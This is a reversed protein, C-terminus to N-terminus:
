RDETMPWRDDTKQGRCGTRRIILFFGIGLVLKRCTLIDPIRSKKHLVSNAACAIAGVSVRLAGGDHDPRMAACARLAGVTAEAVVALGSFRIGLSFPGHKYAAAPRM